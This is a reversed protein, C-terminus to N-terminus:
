LVRGSILDSLEALIEKQKREMEIAEDDEIHDFGALHLIGHIILLALEERYTSEFEVSQRYAVDPAIVIDGLSYVEDLPTAFDDEINDCEFSLVDTSGAKGRYEENLHAMREDDVFTISVETNGPLDLSSMAFTAVEEVFAPDTSSGDPQVPAYELDILVDM